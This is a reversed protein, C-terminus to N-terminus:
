GSLVPATDLPASTTPTASPSYKRAESTAGITPCVRWTTYRSSPSIATIEGSPNWVAVM